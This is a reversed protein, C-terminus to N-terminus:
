KGKRKIYEEIESLEEPLSNGFEDLDDNEIYTDEITIDLFPINKIVEEPTCSHGQCLLNGDLYYGEWDDLSIRKLIM